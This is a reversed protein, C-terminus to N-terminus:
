VLEVKAEGLEGFDAVVEDGAQVARMGTITGTTILDGRQLSLNQRSLFGALWALSNLPNGLVESGTGRNVQEGNIRLVAEHKGLDFDRWNEQPTGHVLAINGAADAVVLAGSPKGMSEPYRMGAVEIGACVADVADALRDTSGSDDPTYDEGMRLVFEVEVIAAQGPVLTCTTPSLLTTGELLPGAFPESLGLNQQMPTATAGVKWGTKREGSIRVYSQQLRYADEVSLSADQPEMVADKGDKRASWLRTALNDIDM